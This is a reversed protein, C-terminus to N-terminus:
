REEERERTRPILYDPCPVREGPAYRKGNLLFAGAVSWDHCTPCESPGDFGRQLLQQFVQQPNGRERHRGIMGCHPCTVLNRVGRWPDLSADYVRQTTTTHVHGNTDTYTSGVGDLLHQWFNSM